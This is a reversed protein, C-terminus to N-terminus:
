RGVASRRFRTAVAKNFIEEIPKFDLYEIIAQTTFRVRLQRNRDFLVMGSKIVRHKLYPSSTNLVAIDVKRLSFSPSAKYYINKLQEFNKRQLKKEDILVAIDIDSEKLERGEACSGFLYLAAVEKRSKFYTIIRKIDSDTQM